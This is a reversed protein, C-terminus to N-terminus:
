SAKVVLAPSSAGLVVSQATCGLLATGMPSRRGAGVVVVSGVVEEILGVLANNVEVDSAAKRLHLKWDVGDTSAIM